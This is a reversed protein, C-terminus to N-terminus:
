EIRDQWQTLWTLAPEEPVPDQQVDIQIKDVCPKAGATLLAQELKEAGLCFTDYSSDGIACVALKIQSLDPKESTLSQFFPAINDPPDGAGHTSCVLIWYGMKNLDQLNPQLLVQAEHGLDELQAAMEDAVYESNGLTSGVLLTIQVM